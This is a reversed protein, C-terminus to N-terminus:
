AEVARAKYGQLNLQAITQAQEVETECEIVVMYGGQDSKTRGSPPAPHLVRYLDDMDDGDYGSGELARETSIGRENGEDVVAKLYEYLMDPKYGGATNAKNDVLLIKAAVEPRVSIVDAPLTKAGRQQAAEIRGAGALCWFQKDDPLTEGLFREDPQPRWIVIRGYFGNAGFSQDIMGIDHDKPNKPHVAVLDIDVDIPEQTVIKLGGIQTM